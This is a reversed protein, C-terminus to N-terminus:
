LEMNMYFKMCLFLVEYIENLSSMFFINRKYILPRIIILIYLYSFIYFIIVDHFSTTFTGKYILPRIIIM